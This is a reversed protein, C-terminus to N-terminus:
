VESTVLYTVPLAKFGTTIENGFIYEFWELITPNNAITIVVYVITFIIIKKIFSKHNELFELIKNM